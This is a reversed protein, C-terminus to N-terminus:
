FISDRLVVSNRLPLSQNLGLRASITFKIQLYKVESLWFFHWTNTKERGGSLRRENGPVDNVWKNMGEIFIHLVSGILRPVPELEQFISSCSCAPAKWFAYCRPLSLYPCSSVFIIHYIRHTFVLCCEQFDFTTLCYVANVSSFVPPLLHFPYYLSFAQSSMKSITYM